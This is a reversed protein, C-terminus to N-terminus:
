PNQHSFMQIQIITYFFVWLELNTKRDLALFFLSKHHASTYLLNSCLNSICLPFLSLQSQSLLCHKQGFSTRVFFRPKLDSWLLFGHNLGLLVKFVPPVLNKNRVISPVFGSMEHYLAPRVHAVKLSVKTDVIQGRDYAAYQTGKLYTGWIPM